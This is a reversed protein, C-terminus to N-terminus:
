IANFSAGLGVGYFCFLVIFAGCLILLLICCCYFCATIDPVNDTKHM